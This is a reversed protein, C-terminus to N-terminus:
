VFTLWHSKKQKKRSNGGEPADDEIHKAKYERLIRSASKVNSEPEWTSHFLENYGKWKCYYSYTWTQGDM